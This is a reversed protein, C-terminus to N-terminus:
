SWQLKKASTVPLLYTTDNITDRADQVPICATADVKVVAYENVKTLLASKINNNPSKVIRLAIRVREDNSNFQWYVCM